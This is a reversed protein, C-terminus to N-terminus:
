FQTPLIHVVHHDDVNVLDAARDLVHELFGSDYCLGGTRKGNGTM